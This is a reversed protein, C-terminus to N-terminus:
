NRALQELVMRRQSASLVPPHGATLEAGALPPPPPWRAALGALRGAFIDEM